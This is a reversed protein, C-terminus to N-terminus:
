YRPPAKTGGSPEAELPVVCLTSPNLLYACQLKEDPTGRLVLSLPLIFEKFDIAGNHDADFVGFLYEAFQSPNGSPFVREFFLVFEERNLRGNPYDQMFINYSHTRAHTRTHTHAHTRTHQHIPLPLSVYSYSPHSQIPSLHKCPMSKMRTLQLLNIRLPAKASDPDPLDPQTECYTNRQLDELEEPTLRPRSQSKGM